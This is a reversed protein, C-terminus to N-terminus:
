RSRRGELADQVSAAKGAPPCAKGYCAPKFILKQGSKPRLACVGASAEKGNFWIGWYWNASSKPKFPLKLGHIGIVEYDAYEADWKGSWRGQTALQLAGAATDGACSGGFRRVPTSTLSVTRDLLLKSMPPKGFVEVTVRPGHGGRNKSQSRRHTPAHPGHKHAAGLAPPSLALAACGGLAAAAGALPAIVGRLNRVQNIM